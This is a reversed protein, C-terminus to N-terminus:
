LRCKTVEAECCVDDNVVSQDVTGINIEYGQIGCITELDEYCFLKKDQARLLNVSVLNGNKDYNQGLILFLSGNNLVNPIEILNGIPINRLSRINEPEYIDKLSILKEMKNEKKNTKIPKKM